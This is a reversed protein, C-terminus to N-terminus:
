KTLAEIVDHSHTLPIRNGELEIRSGSSEDILELVRVNVRQHVKATLGARPVQFAVPRPADHRHMGLGYVTTDSVGIVMEHPLGAAKDAADMGALSGAALGIAEGAQGMAGGADGLTLGGLFMGGSHGRPEFRGAVTVQDQIGHEDLATQVIEILKEESM